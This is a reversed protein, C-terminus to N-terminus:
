VVVTARTDAQMQGEASLPIQLQSVVHDRDLGIRERKVRVVQNPQLLPNVVTGFSVNEITGLQRALRAAAVDAAQENSKIAGSHFFDPVQGFPGNYYTPSLPNDDVAEGRAPVDTDGLNEGTVIAKNFSGLRTWSRNVAVLVGNEGEAIEWVPSGTVFMSVPDATLVGDNDFYLWWGCAEAMRQCFEWRDGGEEAVFIDPTTYETTPLNNPVDPWVLQICELIATAYNTSAAVQYPAEFKADIVRASRDTGQVSMTLQDGTDDVTVTDVRYIGLPYTEVDGNLYRVGRRIKVEADYPAFPSGANVPIWGLTGDDGIQLDCQGRSTANAALTVSGDLVTPLPIEDGGDILWAEVVVEAQNAIAHLFRDGDVDLTVVSPDPAPEPEGGDGGGRLVLLLSM